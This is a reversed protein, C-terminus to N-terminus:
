VTSQELARLSSPYGVKKQKQKKQKHTHTHTHTNKKKQKNIKQPKKGEKKAKWSVISLGRKAMGGGMKKTEKKQYTKKLYSSL